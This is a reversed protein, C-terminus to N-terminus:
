IAMMMNMGPEYTEPNSEDDLLCVVNVKSGAIAELLYHQPQISVVVSPKGKRVSSCGVGVQGVVVLAIM